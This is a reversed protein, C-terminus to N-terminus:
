TRPEPVAPRESWARLFGECGRRVLEVPDLKWLSDPFDNGYLGDDSMIELEYWGQYGADDLAGLIAPIDAVGDGPLLQKTGTDQKALIETPNEGVLRWTLNGEWYVCSAGAELLRKFERITEDVDIVEDSVRTRDGEPFKKGVEGIVSFGLSRAFQVYDAEEEM